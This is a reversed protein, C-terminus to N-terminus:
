AALEALLEDDSLVQGDAANWAAIQAMCAKRQARAKRKNAPTGFAEIMDCLALDAAIAQEQNHRDMMM